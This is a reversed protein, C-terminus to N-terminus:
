APAASGRTSAVVRAIAFSTNAEAGPVHVSGGVLIRGDAQVALCRVNNSGNRHGFDLYVKGGSGFATDARGRGDFRAVYM